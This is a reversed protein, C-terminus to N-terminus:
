DPCTRAAWSPSGVVGHPTVKELILISLRFRGHQETVAEVEFGADRALDAYRRMADGAPKGYFLRAAWRLFRIDTEVFLGVIVLRGGSARRDPSPCRLIRAAERLTDRSSIYEAPFTAVVTDFSCDAFPMAQAHGRVLPAWVGRRRMKGAALRHMATSPELGCVHWGGEALETLLEGTGFGIELVDRGIVYPVARSRWHSWRGLSVVWSVLDYAWAFESYLRRTAWLYLRAAYTLEPQQGTM